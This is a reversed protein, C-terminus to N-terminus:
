IMQPSATLHAPTPPQVLGRWLGGEVGQSDVGELIWGLIPCEVRWPATLDTTTSIPAVFGNWFWGFGFFIVSGANGVHVLCIISVHERILHGPWM